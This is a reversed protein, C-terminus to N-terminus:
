LDALWRVGDGWELEYVGEDGAGGGRAAGKAGKCAVVKPKTKPWGIWEARFARYSAVKTDAGFLATMVVSGRSDYEEITPVAGHGLLVHANPLPQYSGQTLSYIPNLPNLPNLLKRSLIATHASPNLSILPGTTPAHGNDPPANDNNHLTLALTLNPTSPHSHPTPPLELRADHQYCFNTSPGLTFDWGDRGQLLHNTSLHPSSLSFHNVQLRWIVNGADDLYFVTCFYRSSVVYHDGVAAFSNMHSYNWTTSSNMGWGAFPFLSRNLPFDAIHELFSWRFLVTNTKIDMEYILDDVVWGDEAGGMSRLDTQTINTAIVLMTNRDTIFTEKTDIYSPYTLGNFTVFKQDNSENLTLHIVEYSDDLITVAGYGRGLTDPFGSGNWYALVPRGEYTQSWLGLALGAPGQWVLENDDTMILPAAEEAGPGQPNLLLYGKETEGSKTIAM